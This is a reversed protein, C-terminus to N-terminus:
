YAEASGLIVKHLDFNYATLLCAAMAVAMSGSGSAKFQHVDFDDEVGHLKDQCRQGQLCLELLCDQFPFRSM